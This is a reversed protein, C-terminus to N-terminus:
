RARDLLRPAHAGQGAGGLKTITPICRASPSVSRSIPPVPTPVTIAYPAAAACPSPRGAWRYSYRVERKREAAQMEASRSAKHVTWNTERTKWGRNGRSAAMGVLQARIAHKRNQLVDCGKPMAGCLGQPRDNSGLEAERRRWCGSRWGCRLGHGAQPAKSGVVKELEVVDVQVVECLRYPAPRPQPTGCLTPPACGGSDRAVCGGGRCYWRM